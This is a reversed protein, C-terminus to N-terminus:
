PGYILCYLMIWVCFRMFNWLINMMIADNCNNLIMVGLINQIEGRRGAVWMQLHLHCMPISRGNLKKIAGIQITWSIFAKENHFKEKQSRTGMNSIYQNLCLSICVQSVKYVYAIPIVQRPLVTLAFLQDCAGEKTKIGLIPPPVWKESILAHIFWFLITQRSAPVEGSHILHWGHTGAKTKIVFPPLVWWQSILTSTSWALLVKWYTYQYM